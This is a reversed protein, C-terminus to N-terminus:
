GPLGSATWLESQFWYRLKISTGNELVVEFLKSDPALQSGLIHTIELRKGQWYIARPRDAYSIGSYCEVSVVQDGM